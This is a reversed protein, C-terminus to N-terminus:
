RERSTKTHIYVDGVVRQFNNNNTGVMLKLRKMEKEKGAFSLYGGFVAETHLAITGKIENRCQTILVM